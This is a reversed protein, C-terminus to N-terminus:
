KGERTCLEFEIHNIRTTNIGLAAWAGLKGIVSKKKAHFQKKGSQPNAGARCM